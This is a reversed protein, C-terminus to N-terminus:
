NSQGPALFLDLSRVLALQAALPVEELLLSSLLRPRIPLSSLIDFTEPMEPFHGRQLNITIVILDAPLPFNQANQKVIDFAGSLLPAGRFCAM